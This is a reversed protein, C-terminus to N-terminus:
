IATLTLSLWTDVITLNVAVLGTKNQAKSYRLYASQSRNQASCEVCCTKHKNYNTRSEYYGNKELKRKIPTDCIVCLNDEIFEADIKYKKARLRCENCCYNRNKFQELSERAGGEYFKREIANGCLEDSNREIQAKCTKM